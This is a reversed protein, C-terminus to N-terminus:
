YYIFTYKETEVCWMLDIKFFSTLQGNEYLKKVHYIYDFFIAYNSYEYTILQRNEMYSIYKKLNMVEIKRVLEQTRFKQKLMDVNYEHKKKERLKIDYSNPRKKLYYLAGGLFAVYMVYKYLKENDLWELIFPENYVYVTDFVLGTEEIFERVATEYDKEGVDHKGRPISLKEVFPIHKNYKLNRNVKENYSKNAQLIVVKNDNTLLLLGAHKGRKVM